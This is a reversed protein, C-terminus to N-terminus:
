WGAYHGPLYLSDDEHIHAAFNMVVDTDAPQTEAVSCQGVGSESKSILAVVPTYDADGDNDPLDEPEPLGSHDDTVTFTYDVDPDDFAREHEPAFNSVEPAENEVQVDPRVNGFEIQVEDEEDVKIAPVGGDTHMWVAADGPTADSSLEVLRVAAVFTNESYASRYAEVKLTDDASDSDLTLVVCQNGNGCDADPSEANVEIRLITGWNGWETEVFNEDPDVATAPLKTPREPVDASATTKTGALASMPNGMQTGPVPNAKTIHVTSVSDEVNTITIRVPAEADATESGGDSAVVTVNCEHDTGCPEGANDYDLSELTNLNGYGDISFSKADAGSLSYTVTDGDADSAAYSGLTSGRATNEAVQQHAAPPDVNFKPANDNVNNLKVVLLLTDALGLGDQVEVHVRLGTDPDYNEDEYDLEVGQKVRLEAQFDGPANRTVNAIEFQDRSLGERLEFTLDNEDEDTARFVGIDRNVGFMIAGDSYSMDEDITTEADDGAPSVFNPAENANLVKVTVDMTVPNAGDTAEVTFTFEPTAETDLEEGIELDVTLAGTTRNVDFPVHKTSSIRYTVTDGVDPDTAEIVVPLDTDAPGTQDVPKEVVPDDNQATEYVWPTGAIATFVPEEDVDVITVRVSVLGLLDGNADSVNVIFAPSNGDEFNPAVRVSIVGTDVNITYDTDGTQVGSEITYSDADAFHAPLVDALSCAGGGDTLVCDTSGEEVTIGVFESRIAREIEIVTVDIYFHQDPMAPDGDNVGDTVSVELTGTVGSGDEADAGVPMVLLDVSGDRNITLHRPGDIEAYTLTDGSDADSVLDGADLVTLPLDRQAAMVTVSYTPTAVDDTNADNDTDRDVMGFTVAYPATPLDSEKRETPENLSLTITVMISQDNSPVGDSAKVTITQELDPYLGTVPDDAFSWGAPAGTPWNTETEDDTAPNDGRTIDVIGSPVVPDVTTNGPLNIMLKTGDFDFGTAETSYTLDRGEPDSGVGAFDRVETNDEVLGADSENEDITVDLTAPVNMPPSDVDAITIQVMGVILRNILGTDGSATLRLTHDDGATLGNAPGAYEIAMTANNVRFLNASAGGIVGSIAEAPINPTVGTNVPENGTVFYPLVGTGPATTEPITVSYIINNDGEPTVATTGDSEVFSLATVDDIVASIGMTFSNNTANGDLDYDGHSITVTGAHPSGTTDLNNTGAKVIVKNSGSLEFDVATVAADQSVAATGPGMNDIDFTLPNNVRDRGIQSIVEGEVIKSPEVNFTQSAQVTPVHVTVTTILKGDTDNAPDTDTDSVDNGEGSADQTIDSDYVATVKVTYTSGANFTSPSTLTIRHFQTGDTPLPDATSALSFAATFEGRNAVAVANGDADIENTTEATLTTSIAGYGTTAGGAPPTYNNVKYILIAASTDASDAVITMTAAVSPRAQALVSAAFLGVLLMAAVLVLPLSWIKKSSVIDEMTIKM